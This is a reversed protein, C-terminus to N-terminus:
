SNPSRDLDGTTDKVSVAQKDASTPRAMEGGLLVLIKKIAEMQAEQAQQMETRFGLVSAKWQRLEGGIEVLMENAEALEKQAQRLQDENGTVQAQLRKNSELLQKNVKRSELLQEAAEAYKKSWELALDLGGGEAAKGDDDVVSRAMYTAEGDQRDRPQAARPASPEFPGFSMRDCGGLLALAATAAVCRMGFRM